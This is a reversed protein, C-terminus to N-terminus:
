KAIADGTTTFTIATEAHIVAEEKGTAAAVGTGAGAGVATGILAGKGGGALGGIVVSPLKDATIKVKSHLPQYRRPANFKRSLTPSHFFL